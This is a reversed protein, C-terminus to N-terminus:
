DDPLHEQAWLSIQALAPMLAKGRSTLSYSVSVPPGEDVRRAVLGAETLAALRDSLV